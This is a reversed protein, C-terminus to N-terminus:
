ARKIQKNLPKHKEDYYDILTSEKECKFYKQGKSKSGANANRGRFHRNKKLNAVLAMKDMDFLSVKYNMKINKM